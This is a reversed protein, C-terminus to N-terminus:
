PGRREVEEAGFLPGSRCTTDGVGGYSGTVALVDGDRAFAAGSEDYVTVPEFEVRWGNPYLVEIRLGDEAVLWACGVSGRMESTLRGSVTERQPGIKLSGDAQCGALVLCLGMLAGSVM